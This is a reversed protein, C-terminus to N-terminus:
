KKIREFKQSLNEIIQTIQPYIKDNKNCGVVATLETEKLIFWIMTNEWEEECGYENWLEQSSSNNYFFASWDASEWDADPESIMNPWVAVVADSIIQEVHKVNNPVTFIIDDGGIM